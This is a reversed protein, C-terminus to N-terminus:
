DGTERSKERALIKARAKAYETPIVIWFNEREVEWNSLISEARRSHTSQLHDRLMARLRAEYGEDHALTEGLKQLNLGGRNFNAAMRNGPDHVFAIGGTMGAGFNGGIRGLVAVFGGTMYECGNDGCGEVVAVAGSNRVAFRQGAEGRAYLEGSTAGYLVTNGLVTCPDDTANPRIGPSVVITGGSLGKGVYDNAVGELWITVGRTLWAGLSQGCYGKLKLIIAGYQIGKGRNRVIVGSLYTGINRDVNSVGLEFVAPEPCYGDPYGSRACPPCSLAGAWGVTPALNQLTPVLKVTGVLPKRISVPRSVGDFSIALKDLHEKVFKQDLTLGVGAHVRECSAELQRMTSPAEPRNTLPTLDLGRVMATFRGNGNRHSHSLFDTRGRVEDLSRAGLMALNKRVDEAFFAMLRKVREAGRRIRAEIGNDGDERWQFRERYRPDQVAVGVPCTNAHCQHVMMCGMAVLSVSGFAFMDAGLITAIVIDRGTRLGGDTKVKAKGRLGERVLSQHVNSLGIEWPLGSFNISTVPSAGTGGDHGSVHVIDAGAKVVGVAITGIGTHSVLKVSVKARPNVQKLDHILQALDEISYIDHHPAPSILPVGETAHRVSAIEQSAKTGPLQGGEGPKAGQAMKIELVSASNLYEVTVGFRASAVQKIPAKHIVRHSEGGEGCNSFSGLESMAMNLAETAEASLSGFSMGATAFRERIIKHSDEVESLPLPVDALRLDLLDRLYLPAKIEKEIIKDGETDLVMRSPRAEEARVFADFALPDNREVALQLLGITEKRFGNLNGSDTRLLGGSPLIGGYDLDGYCEMHHAAIKFALDAASAGSITSVVGPMYKKVLGADLGLAHYFRGGRYSNLTSVGMKSMVKMLGDRMANKYRSIAPGADNAFINLIIEEALVPIVTDAGNTVAMAFAHTDFVDAAEMHISVQQRLGCRDLGSDIASIILSSPIAARDWGIKCNTLILQGCGNRACQIAEDVIEDMRAEFREWARVEFTCDLESLCWQKSQFLAKLETLEATTLLPSELEIIDFERLPTLDPNADIINGRDGLRTKMDFTSGERLPDIPPNTVQAFDQRLFETFPRRGTALVALPRSDGMSGVLEKGEYALSHLIDNVDEHFGGVATFRQRLEAPLEDSAEKRARKIRTVRIGDVLRRPKFTVIQRLRSAWPYALPRPITPEIPSFSVTEPTLGGQRQWSTGRVDGGCLYKRVSSSDMFTGDNLRVAITEGPGITGLKTLVDNAYVGFGAESGFALLPFGDSNDIIVYRGPRFGSRDAGFLLIDRACAAIAAPGDWQHSLAETAKAWGPFEGPEATRLAPPILHRFAKIPDWGSYILAQLAASLQASDSLGEPIVAVGQETISRAICRGARSFDRVNSGLTNIEGNHALVRFPHALKWTPFTNTSFRQHYIAFRTPFRSLDELDTYFGAFQEGLFLGKYVLTRSSLSCVFFDGDLNANGIRAEIQLVARYLVRELEDEVLGITDEIVIQKIDPRSREAIIGIAKENVPVDRWIHDVLGNEDLVSEVIRECRERAARDTRPLFIQGVAIISGPNKLRKGLIAKFFDRPVEIMLGVGDGTMCDASVAGRHSLYSMAYLAREVVRPDAKGTLSAIGGVGCAAHERNGFRDELGDRLYVDTHRQEMSM